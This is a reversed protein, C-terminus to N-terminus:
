SDRESCAFVTLGQARMGLLQLAVDVGASQSRLTRLSMGFCWCAPDM